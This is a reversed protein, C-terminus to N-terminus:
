TAAGPVGGLGGSLWMDGLSQQYEEYAAKWGDTDTPARQVQTAGDELSRTVFRVEEPEALDLLQASHTAIVVQVAKAGLEGRSLKRLMAIAEALLYPHLGHEPEEICLIDVPRELQPLCLLALTIITGDSV